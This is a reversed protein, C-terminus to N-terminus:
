PTFAMPDDDGPKLTTCEMDSSDSNEDNDPLPCSSAKGCTELLPETLYSSTTQIQSKATGILVVPLM